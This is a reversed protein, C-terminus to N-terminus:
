PFIYLLYREETDKRVEGSEDSSLDYFKKLTEQATDEMLVHHQRTIRNAEGVDTKTNLQEYYQENTLNQQNFGYLECEQNNVTSYCYQYKIHDWITKEIIKLLTPTDYSESTNDLDLDNNMIYLLVQMCQGRIM